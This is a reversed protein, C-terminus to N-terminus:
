ILFIYVHNVKRINTAVFTGLTETEATALLIDLCTALVAPTFPAAKAPSSPPPPPAQSLAEPADAPPADPSEAAALGPAQSSLVKELYAFQVARRADRWTCLAAGLLSVCRPSFSQM